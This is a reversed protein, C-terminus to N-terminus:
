VGVQVRVRVRVGVGVRGGVELGLGLGVGLWTRLSSRQPAVTTAVVRKGMSAARRKAAWARERTIM